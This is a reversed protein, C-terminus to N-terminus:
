RRAVKSLLDTLESVSINELHAVADVIAGLLESDTGSAGLRNFKDVVRDWSMPRTFFGEYDEKEIIVNTGDRAVVRLRAPIARPFRQSLDPDPRVFVKRLLGQVDAAHIREPSYQAPTVKGDLLAVALLYPLSHDAQEKNSVDYKAGEEGGGIINFAVDFTNLEIREVDEATLGHDKRVEIMAELASQSHIEANFKKLITLPLVDLMEADWDITFPGSITEVFGKNGEFIELPGTVGRSALFAAHTAGFATNAYALGKWHSLRGTRTVRLANNAVGAMSVAHATQVASLGLAKAVGAAVAYAGQTTHDFGRARVPAEDSLRCHVQYAVALSVLLDRGKAGAYESAALVSGLNDSPHCTEEPALYGDNFDLYRILATNYLAARDPATMSGGILTCLPHGGFEELQRRLMAVPEGALGGIACGLADLIHAKLVERALDSLDEYSVRVVFEALRDVSTPAHEEIGAATADVQASGNMM